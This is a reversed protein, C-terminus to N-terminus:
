ITIEKLIKAVAEIKNDAHLIPRGVVLYDSGMQVAQAPTTIRAQDNKAAWEPRVGPTVVFFDKGCKEKIIEIEQPSAVVGSLGAEKANNALYSVYNKIEEKIKLEQKLIEQTISTLVTVGLIIPIPKNKKLAMEEAGYVASRMMDKGGIAHVNFMFVGLDVASAAAGAVTNPIDHFKLDLFVKSGKSHILEVVKPGYKTFLKKGVKFMGVSDALEDVLVKVEEIDDVDLALILKEKSDM